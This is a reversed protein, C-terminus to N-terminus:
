VGNKNLLPTDNYQVPMSTSPEGANMEVNNKSYAEKHYTEMHRKLSSTSGGTMKMRKKCLTCCCEERSLKTFFKWVSSENKRARKPASSQRASEVESNMTESAICGSTSILLNERDSNERIEVVHAMKLEMILLVDFLM